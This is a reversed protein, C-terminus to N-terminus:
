YILYKHRKTKFEELDKKWSERIQQETWGSEIQKRLESTGALKEFFSNFFKEKEPYKQYYTMLWYLDIQNPKDDITSDYSLPM